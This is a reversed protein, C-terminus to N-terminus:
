SFPSAASRTARVCGTASRLASTRRKGCHRARRMARVPTGRWRPTGSLCNPGTLRSLLVPSGCRRRTYRPPPAYLAAAARRAGAAAPLKAAVQALRLVAETDGAAQAHHVLRAPDQVAQRVLAALAGRHLAARRGPPLSDEIAQRAIDHRFRVRGRGAGEAPVIMGSDLCEDMAEATAPALTEVMWLEASGPVVAVADLVDRAAPGLRAARALVVDRVSAPVLSTGAALVETVFFPNGATREHLERANVALPAALTAVAKQTLGALEVRAVRATGPLDGLVVRLPHDRELQDDRYSLALLVPVQEIRRAIFRIVDLTAEDAWHMDELVLVAPGGRRLESLLAAAVDFSKAGDAVIAALPGGTVTALDRLPGLPRPAFLPDRVSDFYREGYSHSRRWSDM